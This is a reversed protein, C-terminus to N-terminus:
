GAHRCRRQGRQVVVLCHCKDRWSLITTNVIVGPCMHRRGGLPWHRQPPVAAPPACQATASCMMTGGWRRVGPGSRRAL